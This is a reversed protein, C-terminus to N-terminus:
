YYRCVSRWGFRTWHRVCRKVHHVPRPPALNPRCHGYPGRHFGAGCGGAVLILNASGDITTAPAVAIMEGANAIGPAAMISLAAALCLISRRM